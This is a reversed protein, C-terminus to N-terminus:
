KGNGPPPPSHSNWASWTPSGPRSTRGPGAIGLASAWALTRRLCRSRTPWTSSYSPSTVPAGGCSASAIWAMSSSRACSPALGVSGSSCAVIRIDIAAAWAPRARPGPPPARRWTRAGPTRRQGARGAALRGQQPRHQRAGRRRRHAAVVRLEHQGAVQRGAAREAAGVDAVRGAQQEPTESSPPMPVGTSNSGAKPGCTLALGDSAATPRSPEPLDNKRLRRHQSVTARPPWTTVMSRVRLPSYTRKARRTGPRTCTTRRSAPASTHRSGIRLKAPSSRVVTVSPNRDSSAPQEAWLSSPAASASATSATAARGPAVGSRRRRRARGCPRCCTSLGVGRGSAQGAPQRM